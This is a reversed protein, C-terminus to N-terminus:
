PFSVENAFEREHSLNPEAGVAENAHDTGTPHLPKRPRTKTVSRLCTPSPKTGAPMNQMSKKQSPNIERAEVPVRVVWWGFLAFVVGAAFGVRIRKKRRREPHFITEAWEGRAIRDALLFVGLEFVGFVIRPDRLHLRHLFVVAIELSFGVAAEKSIRPMISITRGSKATAAIM